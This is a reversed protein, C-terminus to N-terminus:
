RQNKKWNFLNDPMLQMQQFTCIKRPQNTPHRRVGWKLGPQIKWKGAVWFCRLLSKQGPKLSFLLRVPNDIPQRRFVDYWSLWSNNLYHWELLLQPTKWHLFILYSYREISNKNKKKEIKVALTSGTHWSHQSCSGERGSRWSPRSSHPTSQDAQASRRHFTWQLPLSRLLPRLSPGRGPPLTYTYM